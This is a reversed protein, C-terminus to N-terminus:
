GGDVRQVVVVRTRPPSGVMRIQAQWGSKDLWQQAPVLEEAARQGKLLLMRGGATVM